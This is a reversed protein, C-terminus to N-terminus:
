NGPFSCTGACSTAHTALSSTTGLRARAHQVFHCISRARNRMLAATASPGENPPVWGAYTLQRDSSNSQMDLCLIDIGGLALSRPGTHHAARTPDLPQIM